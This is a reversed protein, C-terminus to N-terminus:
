QKVGEDLEIAQIFHGKLYPVRSLTHYVLYYFPEPWGFLFPVSGKNFKKYKGIRSSVTEDATAGKVCIFLNLGQSIWCGAEVLWSKKGNNPEM